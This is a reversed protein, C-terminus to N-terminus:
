YTVLENQGREEATKIFAQIQQHSLNLVFYHYNIPELDHTACAKKYIDYAEEYNVTM